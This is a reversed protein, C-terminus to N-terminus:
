GHEREVDAAHARAAGVEVVIGYGAKSVLGLAGVDLVEVEGTPFGFGRCRYRELHDFIRGKDAGDALDLVFQRHPLVGDKGRHQHRSRRLQQLRYRLNNQLFTRTMFNPSCIGYKVQGPPGACSPAFSASIARAASSAPYSEMQTISWKKWIGGTPAASRSMSSAYVVRPKRAPWVFRAPRPVM